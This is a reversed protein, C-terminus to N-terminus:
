VKRGGGRRARVGELPIFRPDAADVFAMISGDGHIFVDGDIIHTRTLVVLRQRHKEIVLGGEAASAGGAAVAGAKDDDLQAVVAIDDPLVRLEPITLRTADG